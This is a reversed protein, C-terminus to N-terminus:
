GGFKIGKILRMIEPIWQIGIYGGAAYKITKKGEHEDGAMIKMFGKILFGYAVPEAIDKLIIILPQLGTAISTTAAGAITTNSAIVITTVATKKLAENVDIDIEVTKRKRTYMGVVKM